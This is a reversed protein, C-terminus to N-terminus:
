SHDVTKGRPVRSMVSKCTWMTQRSDTAPFGWSLLWAVFLGSLLPAAIALTFTPVAETHFLERWYNWIVTVVLAALCGGIASTPGARRIFMGAFFLTALPGVFLNFTKSMLEVINVTGSISYAWYASGTAIVGIVITLTRAVALANTKPKDEKTDRGLFDTTVVATIANVGSDLSSMAAALLAALIFGGVGPPLQHAIFYPFLKDAFGKSTPHLGEPLYDPLQLYFALLSLGCLCLVVALSIDSLASMLYSKRAASESPTSFYRQLVVQDSGYTCITWFFAHCVFTFVTRSETIDWSFLLPATHQGRMESVERWWQAPGTGTVYAVYAVTLVAGAFLLFFQVVDTWIVARIGGIATYITAFLGVVAIIYEIRIETMANIAMSSTYVVVGMWGFRLLIFLTAGLLRTPYNFRLELYEYASTIRLRMFFPVILWFIVVFSFPLALNATFMGIGNRVIEGPTGLYSVTSLLTAFMSLGVALWPMRRGGLFFEETSDHRRAVAIALGLIGALYVAVTVYDYTGLGSHPSPVDLSALGVGSSIAQRPFPSALAFLDGIQDSLRVCDLSQSVGDCGAITTVRM